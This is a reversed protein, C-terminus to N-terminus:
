GALRRLEQQLLLMADRAVRPTVDYEEAVAEVSVPEECALRMEIFTALDDLPVLRRAVEADVRRESRRVWHPSEGGHFLLGLELHCLEHGLVCRREVRGLRADLTIVFFADHDEVRGRHKPLWGYELSM